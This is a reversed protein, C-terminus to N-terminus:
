EIVFDRDSRFIKVVSKYGDNLIEKKYKDILLNVDEPLGKQYHPIVIQLAHYKMDYEDTVIVLTNRGNKLCKQYLKYYENLIVIDVMLGERDLKDKSGKMRAWAEAAESLEKEDFYYADVISGYPSQSWNGLKKGNKYVVGTYYDGERGTLTKISKLSIGYISPIGEKKVIKVRSNVPQEYEKKVPTKEFVEQLSCDILRNNSTLHLNVCKVQQAKIANKLANAQVNMQNGQEDQLTYGYIVNNNDRLKAICKVRIM